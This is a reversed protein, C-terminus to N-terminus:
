YNEDKIEVANRDLVADYAILSNNSLTAHQFITEDSRIELNCLLWNFLVNM